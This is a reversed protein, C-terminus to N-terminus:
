CLGNKREKDEFLGFSAGKNFYGVLLAALNKLVGSREECKGSDLPVLFTAWDAKSRKRNGKKLFQICKTEGALSSQSAVPERKLVSLM